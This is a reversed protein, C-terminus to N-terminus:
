AILTAEILTSVTSLDPRLRGSRQGDILAFANDLVFTDQGTNHCRTNALSPQPGLGQYRVRILWEPLLDSWWGDIRGLSRGHNKWAFM